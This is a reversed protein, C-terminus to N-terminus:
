IRELFIWLILFNSYNGDGCSIRRFWEVICRFHFTSKGVEMGKPLSLITRLFIVLLWVCSAVVIMSNIKDCIAKQICFVDLQMLSWGVDYKFHSHRMMFCWAASFNFLHTTVNTTFTNWEYFEEIRQTFMDDLAEIQHPSLFIALLFWLYNGAVAGTGYKIIREAAVNTTFLREPVFLSSDSYTSHPHTWFGM